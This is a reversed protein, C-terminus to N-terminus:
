FLYVVTGIVATTLVGYLMCELVIKTLFKREMGSLSRLGIISAAILFFILLSFFIMKVM